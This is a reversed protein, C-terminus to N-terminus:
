LYSQKHFDGLSFQRAAYLAAGILGVQQNLVIQIPIEQLLSRMRGKQQFATLFDGQRMLELNKPAIGGAIYLGGYPLIKLALNGAEAGYNQMFIQMTQQALPEDGQAAAILAAPDHPAGKEWETIKEALPTHIPSSRDRLFRYISAIGMGSVIREVSIRGGIKLQLHQLLEIELPSRPAFDTHGGETPYVQYEHRDWILYCQGLGTGAGIVAIPARARPEGDQLTFLDDRGLGLLGYGTAEFDNILKVQPIGTADALEEGDLQWHLNTLNCRNQSVVGAVGFCASMPAPMEGLSETAQQWFDQLIATFSTYNVSDFRAEFATVPQPDHEKVEALRIFTKTGGIDGALTWM